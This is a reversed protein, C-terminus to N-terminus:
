DGHPPRADYPRPGARERARIRSSEKLAAAPDYASVRVCDGDKNHLIVIHFPHEELFEAVEPWEISFALTVSARPLVNLRRQHWDVVAVFENLAKPQGVARAEEAIAGIAEVLVGDEEASSGKFPPDDYDLHIISEEELRRRTLVFAQRDGTARVCLVLLEEREDSVTLSRLERALDPDSSVYREALEGRFCLTCRDHADVFLCYDSQARVADQIQRCARTFAEVLFGHEAIAAIDVRM